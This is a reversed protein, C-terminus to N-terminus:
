WSPPTGQVIAACCHHAPSFSLAVAHACHRCTAISHSRLPLLALSLRLAVVILRPHHYRVPSHSRSPPPGPTIHGRHRCCFATFFTLMIATPRPHHSRLLLSPLPGHIVHACHCHAPPSTVMITIVVPPRSCRSSAVINIPGLTIHGHRRCCRHAM